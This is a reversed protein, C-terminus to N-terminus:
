AVLEGGVPFGVYNVLTYHWEPPSGPGIVEGTWVVPGLRIVLGTEERVERVATQSMPEGLEVRGGPVAWHDQWPGRGKRVLLVRGDEIVAVGVGPVPHEPM